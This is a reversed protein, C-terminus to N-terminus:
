APVSKWELYRVVIPMADPRALDVVLDAAVVTAAQWVTTDPDQGTVSGDQVRRSRGPDPDINWGLVLTHGGHPLRGAPGVVLPGYALPGYAVHAAWRSVGVGCAQLPHAHVPVYGPSAPDTAADLLAFQASEATPHHQIHGVESYPELADRMVDSAGIVILPPQM